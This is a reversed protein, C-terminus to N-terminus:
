NPLDEAPIYSGRISWQLDTPAPAENLTEFALRRALDGYRDRERAELQQEILTEVGSRVKQYIDQCLQKDRYDVDALNIPHGFRTYLRSPPRPRSLPPLLSKKEDDDQKWSRANEVPAKEKLWNAVQPINVLDNGDMLMEFNDDSGVSAFPVILAGFKAATRVFEQEEPWITKYKEDKRHHAERIGGPFLLVWKKEKMLAYFNRPSVQVAGFDEFSFSNEKESDKKGQRDSLFVLPHALGRVLISREKLFHDVFFPLDFLGYLTHNGVFLIPKDGPFLNPVRNAGIIVPSVM